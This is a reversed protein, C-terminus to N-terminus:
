AEHQRAAAGAPAGLVGRLTKIRGHKVNEQWEAPVQRMLDRATVVIEVPRGTRVGRGRDARREVTAGGFMEQSIVVTGPWQRAEDVLADGGARPGRTRSM